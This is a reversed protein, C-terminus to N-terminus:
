GMSYPVSQRKTPNHSHQTDSKGKNPFVGEEAKRDWEFFHTAKWDPPFPGIDKKGIKTPKPSTVYTGGPGLEKLKAPRGLAWSGESLELKSQAPLRSGYLLSTFSVLTVATLQRM